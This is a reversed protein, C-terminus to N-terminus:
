GESGANALLALVGSLEQLITVGDLYLFVTDDDSYPTSKLVYIPIGARLAVGLEVFAGRSDPHYLWVLADACIVGKLDNEGCLKKYVIKAATPENRQRMARWVPIHKTWEYTITHGAGILAAQIARVTAADCLKGAVYIRM